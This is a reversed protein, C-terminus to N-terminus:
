DTDISNFEPISLLQRRSTVAMRERDGQKKLNRLKKGGDREAAFKLWEEIEKEISNDTAKSTRLNM